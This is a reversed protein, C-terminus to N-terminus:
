FDSVRDFNSTRIAARIRHRALYIDVITDM